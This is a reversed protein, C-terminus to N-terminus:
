LNLVVKTERLLTHKERSNVSAIKRFKMKRTITHFFVNGNVYLNDTCLTNNKYFKELQEPMEIPIFTPIHDRKKKGNKKCLTCRLGLFLACKADNM